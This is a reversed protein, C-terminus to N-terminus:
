IRFCCNLVTLPPSASALLHRTSQHLVRAATPMDQATVVRHLIALLPPTLKVTYTQDSQSEAQCHAACLSPADSDMAMNSSSLENCDTMQNEVTVGKVSQMPCAYAATALQAFLFSALMLASIVRRVPKPLNMRYVM